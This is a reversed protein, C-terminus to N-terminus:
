QKPFRRFIVANVENAEADFGLDTLIKLTNKLEQRNVAPDLLGAKLIARSTIDQQLADRRQDRLENLRKQVAEDVKVPLGQEKLQQAITDNAAGSELLQIEADIDEITERSAVLNIAANTPKRRERISQVEASVTRGERGARARQARAGILQAEARAEEARTRRETIGAKRLTEEQKLLRDEEEKELRQIEAANRIRAEEIAQRNSVDISEELEAIEAAGTAEALEAEARSIPEAALVTKRAEDEAAQLQRLRDTGVAFDSFAAGFGRFLNDKITQDLVAQASEVPARAAGAKAEALREIPGRLVEPNRVVAQRFASVQAPELGAEAVMEEVNAEAEEPARALFEALLESRTKVRQTGRPTLREPTM